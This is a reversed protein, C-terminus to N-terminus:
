GVNTRKDRSKEWLMRLNRLQKKDGNAFEAYGKQSLVPQTNHKEAYWKIAKLDSPTM